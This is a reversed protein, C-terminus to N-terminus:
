ANISPRGSGLETGTSPKGPTAGPEDPKRTAAKRAEFYQRWEAETQEIQLRQYEAFGKARREEAAQREARRKEEADRSALRRRRM